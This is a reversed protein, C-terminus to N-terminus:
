WMFKLSFQMARPDTAVNTIQGFQCGFVHTADTNGNPYPPLCWFNNPVGLNQHNLANFVDWEFSLYRQESFHFDKALSMDANWFGPVRGSPPRLGSSGFQWFQNINDFNVPNGNTDTGFTAEYLLTPSTGWPPAFANPNWWQQEKQARTKGSRGASLNGILDPMCSNHAGYIQNCAAGTFYMPVGTQFNWNQTLKWGGFLANTVRGNTAFHQGKGFPLQYTAAINLVHPTDDPSLAYYRARNDPDGSWVHSGFDASGGGASGPLYPLRGVGRNSITDPGATNGVLAGLGESVMNKSYTYSVIFNLGQSLRKEVRLQASEYNNYGDPRLLPQVSWFQPYPVLAYWGSCTINGNVLPYSGCDWIGNMSNNVPWIGNNISSRIKQQTKTPVYNLNTVEEGLLHLGHSGVYGASVSFKGPFQHEVFLSWQQVYPDHSGKLFGFVNQGQGVYQENERRYVSLDPLVLPSSLGDSLIFSPVGVGASYASYNTIPSQVVASSGPSSVAGNGQGFLASMSNSYVIGYSGRIVTKESNGPSWAFGVRPGFSNMNPSFLTHGPHQSTGMWDVAGMYNVVPNKESLNFNALMDHRESIWGFVDWRLGLSLSLHPTAQFQDQFYLSYDKNTQYPAYVTATSASGQGVAGLLFSALADGGNFTYPDNTLTDDFGINYGYGYNAWLNNLRFAGGVKVTHKGIIKTLNDIVNFSQQGMSGNQFEVPGFQGSYGGNYYPTISITPVPQFPESLTFNLGQVRQLVAQNDTVRESNAQAVMNQRGFSIRLENVLTPTFTSTLGLVGLQNLTNYPQSGAWGTNTQATPGDWPYRFNNYYSPNFFWAASLREKDNIVHDVKMSVNDTTMSSGATGMYNNCYIGCGSPGQQLPDVFNPAPMSQMYFQALPDIRDQPLVLGQFPTRHFYGNADPGTTTYPDYLCNTVGPNNPGCNPSFRPDGTYDGGREKLPPVTLLKNERAHLLSLDYSAFFFTRDKGDYIHPIKVPGGLTGGLDNYNMAPQLLPSGDQARRAFPNTASFYSNRNYEYLDGHLENTGSKLVVNVVGGSTPGYEAALGNAVLNFETVADPSPNVVASEAGVTANLAGDLLWIDAGAQGGNASFGSGIFHMPDPFGGYASNFGFVSGSPGTSQVVGPMLQILTQIDRGQLPINNIYQSGLFTTFNSSSTGIQPTTATVQVIQRATGVQMKGDATTPNGALVTVKSVVLDSFGAVKFHVTYQGPVLDLAHYFGASNTTLKAEVGTSNNRVLVEAGPIVAGQPDTVMGQITGRNSVALLCSCMALMVVFGAITQRLSM